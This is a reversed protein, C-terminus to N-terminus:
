AASSRAGAMDHFKLRPMSRRRGIKVIEERENQLAQLLCFRRQQQATPLAKLAAIAADIRRMQGDDRVILENM